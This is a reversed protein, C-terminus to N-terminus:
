GAGLFPCCRNVKNLHLFHSKGSIFFNTKGDEMLISKKLEM